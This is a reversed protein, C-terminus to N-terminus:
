VLTEGSHFDCGVSAGEQTSALLYVWEMVLTWSTADHGEERFIQFLLM